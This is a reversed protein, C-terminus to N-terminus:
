QPIAYVYVCGSNLLANDNPPNVGTGSGDELFAGVALTRGDAALARFQDALRTQDAQLSRIRETGASREAELQARLAAARVQVATIRGAALSWGAFGGLLLAGTVLLLVTPLTM